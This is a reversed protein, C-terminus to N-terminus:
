YSRFWDFGYIYRCVAALQRWRTLNRKHIGCSRGEEETDIGCLMGAVQVPIQDQGQIETMREGAGAGAGQVAVAAVGGGGISDSM